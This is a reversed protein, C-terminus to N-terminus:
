APKRAVVVDQDSLGASRGCWRGPHWALPAALGNDALLRMVWDEPYAVACAPQDRRLVRHPEATSRDAPGEPFVYRANGGAMLSRSEDNLLFFTALLTGGPALVRRIQRIYSETDASLLHTFVSTAVVFTFADDRYPFEFGTGSIAGAPNYRGSFVNVHRFRFRPHAPSINRQCWQVLEQDIDFGDYCGDGALYTTLPAALRGVGCGIDLIRDTPHLGGQERAVRLLGQGVARYDGRGVRDVLRQPPVPVAGPHLRVRIANAGARGIGQILRSLRM